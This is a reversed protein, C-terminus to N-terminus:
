EGFADIRSKGQIHEVKSLFLSSMLTARNKAEEAVSGTFHDNVTQCFLDKWRNFHKQGIPLMAHPPFPRGYYTKENLLISQWFRVMKELHEDWRGDLIGNFIGGLLEDRQVAYYFQHVMLEIDAVTVIDHKTTEM